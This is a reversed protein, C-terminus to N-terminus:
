RGATPRMLFGSMPMDTTGGLDLVGRIMAGTQCAQCATLTTRM